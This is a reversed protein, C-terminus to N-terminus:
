RLSSKFVSRWSKQEEGGNSEEIYWRNPKGNKFELVLGPHIYGWRSIEGLGGNDVHEALIDRLEFKLTQEYFDPYQLLELVEDLTYAFKEETPAILQQIYELSLKQNMDFVRERPDKDPDEATYKAKLAKTSETNQITNEGSTTIEYGNGISRLHGIEILDNLRNHLTQRSFNTTTGLWGSNYYVMGHSDNLEDVSLPGFKDIVALIYAEWYFRGSNKSKGSLTVGLDTIDYETEEAPRCIRCAKKDEAVESKPIEIIDNSTNVHHCDKDFHYGNAGNITYVTKETM